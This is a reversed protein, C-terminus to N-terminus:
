PSTSIGLVDDMGYLGPGRATVWAAARLAGKAFIERSSAQHRLSVREGDALLWVTHEGAVDGGRLAHYGLEGAGRPGQAGVRGHVDYLPRERGSRVAAGLALATGSPADVKHRHHTEVIEVDADPLAAAARRVLGTLLAVGPSFNAARLVPAKNAHDILARETEPDLGTTGSVLARSGLYPLASAVAQPTSFDVVVDADAFVEQAWATRGSVRAVLEIGSMARALACVQSGTRGSAGLVAVRVSSGLPGRVDSPVPM